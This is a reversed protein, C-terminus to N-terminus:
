GMRGSADKPLLQKARSHMTRIKIKSLIGM